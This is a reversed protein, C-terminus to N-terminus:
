GLFRKGKLRGLHHLASELVAHHIVRGQSSSPAIPHPYAADMITPLLHTEARLVHATVPHRGVTVTVTAANSVHTGDNAVYTFTDTGHFNHRPKFVFAGNAFLNLKGHLPGRVLSASLPLGAPSTAGTLVGPVGVKLKRNRGVFYTEDLATPVVNTVNVAGGGGGSGGGQNQAPGIVGFSGFPGSGTGGLPSVLSSGTAAATARYGYPALTPIATGAPGYQIVAPGATTQDLAWLGTSPRFVAIDAKGDGDYDAPVPIDGAQGFPVVETGGTSQSIFWQATSPRFVALDAKGIGEYDAPVPVDGPNGFQVTRLTGNSLSIFWQATSPRFVALDLKGIGEYDAPVPQDINAAGFQRVELGAPGQIFWQATSPRYVAPEARGVGDYDGPVPVDGAQGLPVTLIGAATQIYFTSSSPRYIALDMKGTGDFDGSLPIDGAQGFPETIPGQTSQNISWQGSTTQFLALDAKGDGDFDGAATTVTFTLVPGPGSSNGAVDQVSVHVAYSGNVLAPAPAITFAGTQASATAVGLTNGHADLLTVTAGPKTAGGLLPHRATTTTGGV